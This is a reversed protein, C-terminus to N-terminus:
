KDLSVSTNVLAYIWGNLLLGGKLTCTLINPDSVNSVPPSSEGLHLRDVHIQGLPLKIQSMGPRSRIPKLYGNNARDDASGHLVTASLKNCFSTVWQRRSFCAWVVKRRKTLPATVATTMLIASVPILSQEHNLTESPKVFPTSLSTTQDSVSTLSTLSNSVSWMRLITIPSEGTTNSYFSTSQTIFAVSQFSIEM